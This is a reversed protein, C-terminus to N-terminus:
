ECASGAIEGLQQATEEYDITLPMLTACEDWTESFTHRYSTQWDDSFTWYEEELDTIVYLEVNNEETARCMEEETVLPDLYSQGEEDTFLIIVLRSDPAREIGPLNGIALQWVVDLSPEESIPADGALLSHNMESIFQDYPSLPIATESIPFNSVRSEPIPFTVLGMRVNQIDYLSATEKIALGCALNEQEMSESRDLVFVVDITEMETSDATGDCNDDVGNCARYGEDPLPTVEGICELSHTLQDTCLHYGSHCAGIGETDDPGTYCSIVEGPLCDVQTCRGV